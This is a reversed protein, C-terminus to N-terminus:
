DLTMEADHETNTTGRMRVGRWVRRQVGNISRRESPGLTLTARTRKIFSDRSLGDWVVRRGNNDTHKGAATHAAMFVSDTDVYDAANGTKEVHATVWDYLEGGIYDASTDAIIRRGDKTSQPMGKAAVAADVLWALLSERFERETVRARMTRDDEIRNDWELVRLRSMFGADEGRIRPLRGHNFTSVLTATMRDGRGSYRGHARRISQIDGTAIGKVRDSLRVGALIDSSVAIRTGATFLQMGEDHSGGEKESLVGDPIFTSYEGLAYHVAELFTTKGSRSEGVIWVWGDPYGRMAHGLAAVLWAEVDAPLREFLAPILPEADSLHKGARYATDTSMTVLAARGEAPILLEGTRLDIVGNAAGIYRMDANLARDNCEVVSTIGAARLERAALSLVALVDAWGRATLSSQVRARAKRRLSIDMDHPLATLWAAAAAKIHAARDGEHERWVGNPRMTYLSVFGDDDDSLLLSKGRYFLLRVADGLPSLGEPDGPSFYLALAPPVAAPATGGDETRTASSPESSPESSPPPNYLPIEGGLVELVHEPDLDAVDTKPPYGSVDVLRIDAAGVSVLQRAAEAMAAGGEDDADPWMVCRRGAAATYVAKDANAAGGRWSVPTLDHDNAGYALLARAAKEGEIFVLESLQPKDEGWLKIKTGVPSGKGFIHKGETGPCTNGRWTCGPGCELRHVCLEGGDVHEYVAVLTDLGATCGNRGCQAGRARGRPPIGLATLIDSYSCGHSHCM